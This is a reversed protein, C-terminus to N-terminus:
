KNNISSIIDAAVEEISKDTVDIFHIGLKTFIEKSYEIEEEISEKIVYDSSFPIGMRKLREKRLSLIREPNSILGFIKEKPINYVSENIEQHDIIPINAAKFGRQALFLCLPTKSTRSIGLVLADADGIEDIRQGDDHKVAFELADVRKFYEDNIRHILGPKREPSKNLVTSISNLVPGIIDISVVSSNNSELLMTNRLGDEVLTFIIIAKKESAETIIERIKQASDVLLFRKLRVNGVDFQSLAARVVKEATEGTSDSVVFVYFYENNESETNNMKRM